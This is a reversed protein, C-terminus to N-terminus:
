LLNMTINLAEDDDNHRNFVQTHTRVNHSNNTSNSSNHSDMNMGHPESTPVYLFDVGMGM